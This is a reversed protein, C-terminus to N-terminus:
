YFAIWGWGEDCSYCVSACIIMKSKFRIVNLKFYYFVNCTNLIEPFKYYSETVAQKLFQFSMSNPSPWMCCRTLVQVQSTVQRDQSPVQTHDSTHETAGTVVVTIDRQVSM